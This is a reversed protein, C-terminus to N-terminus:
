APHYEGVGPHEPDPTFTGHNGVQLGRTPDHTECDLEVLVHEGPTALLAAFPIRDVTEGSHDTYAVVALDHGSVQAVRITRGPAIRSTWYGLPESPAVDIVGVPHGTEAPTFVTGDKTARVLAVEDLRMITESGAPTTVLYARPRLDSFFPDSFFTHSMSVARGATLTM